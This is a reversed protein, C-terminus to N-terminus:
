GRPIRRGWRCLIWVLGINILPAGAALWPWVPEPFWDILRNWPLGLPILFVGSLPDATKGFLGFTGILFIALALLYLVWLVALGALCRRARAMAM